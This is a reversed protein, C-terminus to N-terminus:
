KCFCSLTGEYDTHSASYVRTYKKLSSIAENGDQKTCRIIGIKIYHNTSTRLKISIKGM